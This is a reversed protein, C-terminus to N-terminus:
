QAPFWQNWRTALRELESPSFNPNYKKLPASVEPWRCNLNALQMRDAVKLANATTVDDISDCDRTHKYGCTLRNYFEFRFTETWISRGNLRLCKQAAGPVAIFLTECSQESDSAPDFVLVYDAEQFFPTETDREPDFCHLKTEVGVARNMFLYALLMFRENEDLAFKTEDWVPGASEEPFTVPTSFVRM